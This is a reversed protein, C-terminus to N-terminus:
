ILLYLKEPLFEKTKETIRELEEQQETEDTPLGFSVPNFNVSFSYPPVVFPVNLAKDGKGEQHTINRSSSM